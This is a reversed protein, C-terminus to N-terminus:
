QTIREAMKEQTRETCEECEAASAAAKALAAGAKADELVERRLSRIDILVDDLLRGARRRVFTLTCVLREPRPASPGGSKRRASQTLNAQAYEFAHLTRRLTEANHTKIMERLPVSIVQGMENAQMAARKRARLKNNKQTKDWEVQLTRLDVRLPRQSLRRRRTASEEREYHGTAAVGQGKAGAAAAAASRRVADACSARRRTRRQAGTNKVVVRVAAGADPASAAAPVMASFARAGSLRCLMMLVRVRALRM